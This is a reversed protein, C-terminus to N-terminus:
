PSAKNRLGTQDNIIGQTPTERFSNKLHHLISYFGVPAPSVNM